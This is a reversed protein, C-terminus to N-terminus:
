NWWASSWCANYGQGGTYYVYGYNYSCNPRIYQVYYNPNSQYQPYLYNYCSSYYNYQGCFNTPNYNWPNTVYYYTNYRNNNWYYDWTNGYSGNWFGRGDSVRTSDNATVTECARSPDVDQALAARLCSERVMEGSPLQVLAIGTKRSSESDNQSQCGVALVLLVLLVSYKLM